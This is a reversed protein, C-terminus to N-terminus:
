KSTSTEVAEIRPQSRVLFVRDILIAVAFTSVCYLLERYTFFHTPFMSEQCSKQFLNQDWTKIEEWLEPRENASKAM